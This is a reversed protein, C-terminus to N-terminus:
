WQRVAFVLVRKGTEGKEERLETMLTLLSVVPPGNVSGEQQQGEYRSFCGTRGLPYSCPDSDAIPCQGLDRLVRCPHPVMEKKQM